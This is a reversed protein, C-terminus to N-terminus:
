RQCKGCQPIARKPRPPEFQVKICNLSEIRYLDKNNDQPKLDIFFLSLPTNTRQQQINHINLVTHGLQEIASKIDETNTSYHMGRLVARFSRETKPQYTHFETSREVLARVITRYKDSTQTQVKVQNDHLVKIEFESGAIRVLLEELPKIHHVGAIFIPPPKPPKNIATEGRDELDVTRLADFRNSTQTTPPNLWYDQLKIQKHQQAHSDPIDRPRKKYEVTQWRYEPQTTSLSHAPTHPKHAM